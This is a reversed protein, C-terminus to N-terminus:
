KEIDPLFAKDKITYTHEEAPFNAQKVDAVYQKIAAEGAQDFDAYSQVFKPLRESGYQLLDHYVLVQGDADVGAGIGITPIHLAPSIIETLEKPICEYVIMVAGAEELNKADNFLQKSKAKDNGQVRYGGLVNVTQPTLGLHGVVPIGGETLRKVLEFTEESAGEIKLAQADTEQFLRVANNISQEISSHYSMFPMDVIMFTNPAGRKVAKAHHIMDELTVKTTSSYGLVTMGLSDGVLITDVEAQEAQKASPYDYATIMTIKEKNEKMVKFNSVTLM